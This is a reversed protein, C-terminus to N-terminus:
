GAWFFPDKVDQIEDIHSRVRARMMELEEKSNWIGDAHSRVWIQYRRLVGEMGGDPHGDKYSLCMETVFTPTQWLRIEPGEEGESLYLNMSM